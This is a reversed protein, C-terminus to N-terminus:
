KESVIQIDSESIMKRKKFVSGAFRAMAKRNSLWNFSKGHKTNTIMKNVLWPCVTEVRDALINAVKLFREAEKRDAYEPKLFLDTIVMGPSILGILVPSDKTEKMFSKTFYTLASKTTGYLSLKAMKRGDSGFGEMNYIAGYGQEKMLEYVIRTGHIVAKINIDILDNIHDVAIECVPVYDQGIGANNIWLDTRGFTDTSATWLKRIDDNNRVDCTMALIKEAPFNSKLRNEAETLKQENRGSICVSYGAKLFEVALGLGIGASSGTIVAHKTQNMIM